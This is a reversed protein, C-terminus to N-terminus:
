KNRMEKKNLNYMIDFSEHSLETFNLKFNDNLNLLTLKWLDENKKNYEYNNKDPFVEYNLTILIKKMLLIIEEPKKLSCWMTCKKIDLVNERNIINAIYLCVTAINIIENTNEKEKELYMFLLKIADLLSYKISFTFKLGIMWDIILALAKESINNSLKINFTDDNNTHTYCEVLPYKLKLESPFEDYLDEIEFRCEPDINIMDILMDYYDSNGHVDIFKQMTKEINIIYIAQENLEIIKDSDTKFTCSNKDDFDLCFNEWEDYDFGSMVFYCISIGFAFLESKYDIKNEYTYPDYFVPTGIKYKKNTMFRQVFGWDILKINLENDICINAPKIDCHLINEQKIWILIRAFQVMLIPVLEIREEINIKKSLERLSMGANEMFMCISNKKEDIECKNIQTIFPVHKYTSLFFVERLNEEYRLDMEKKVLNTGKVEFVKGFGGSGIYNDFESESYGENQIISQTISNDKVEEINSTQIKIINNQSSM